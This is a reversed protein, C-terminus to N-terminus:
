LNKVDVLGLRLQNVFTISDDSPKQRTGSHHAQEEQEQPNHQQQPQQYNQAQAEEKIVVVTESGVNQQIISRITDSSQALLTQTKANECSLSVFAKGAAFEVKISVRGMGQPNLEIQFEKIDQNIKYVIKDSFDKAFTESKTDVAEGVKFNIKDPDLTQVAQQPQAVVSIDDQATQLT